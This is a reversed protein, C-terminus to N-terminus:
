GRAQRHHYTERWHQIVEKVARISTVEEYALCEDRFRSNFNKVFRNKWLRGLELYSPGIEIKQIFKRVRRSIFEPGNDSRIFRPVGRTALLDALLKIFHGSFFQRGPVLASM